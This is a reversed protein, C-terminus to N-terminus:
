QQLQEVRGKLAQAMADFSRQLKGRMFWRVVWGGFGGFGERTEYIAKGDEGARVGQWREARILWRPLAAPAWAIRHAAPDLHTVLELQTSNPKQTAVLSPPMNVTMLVYGGEQPMQSPLVNRSADVVYVSRMFPNWETYSGFNLLTDWVKEVPADIVASATITLAYKFTPPPFDAMDVSV